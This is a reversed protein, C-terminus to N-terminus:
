IRGERNYGKVGDDREQTDNDERVRYEEGQGHKRENTDSCGM